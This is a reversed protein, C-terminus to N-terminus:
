ARRRLLIQKQFSQYPMQQYFNIQIVLSRELIKDQKLTSSKTNKNTCTKVDQM